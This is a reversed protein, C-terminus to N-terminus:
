SSHSAKGTEKNAAFRACITHKSRIRWSRRRTRSKPFSDVSALMTLADQILFYFEELLADSQQFLTSLSTFQDDM